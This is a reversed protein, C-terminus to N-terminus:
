LWSNLIKTDVFQEELLIIQLTIKECVLEFKNDCYLINLQKIEFDIIDITYIQLCFYVINENNNNLDIECM